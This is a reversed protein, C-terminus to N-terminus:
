YLKRIELYVVAMKARALFLSWVPVELSGNKARDLVSCSNIAQVLFLSLAPVVLSGNKARALFVSWAPVLLSFFGFIWWLTVDCLWISPPYPPLM